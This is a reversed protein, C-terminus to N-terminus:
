GKSIKLSKKKALRSNFMNFIVLLNAYNL